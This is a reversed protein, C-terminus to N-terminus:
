WWYMKGDTSFNVGSANILCIKVTDVSYNAMYVLDSLANFISICSRSLPRQITRVRERVAWLSTVRARISRENHLELTHWWQFEKPIENHAAPREPIVFRVRPIGNWQPGFARGANRRRNAVGIRLAWYCASHTPAPISANAVLAIELEVSGPSASM